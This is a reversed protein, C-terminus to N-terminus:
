GGRRLNLLIGQSLLGMTSSSHPISSDPWGDDMSSTPSLLSKCGGASEDLDEMVDERREDTVEVSSM